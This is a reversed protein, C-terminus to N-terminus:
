PSKEPLGQKNYEYSIEKGDPLTVSSLQNSSKKYNFSTRYIPEERANFISPYIATLRARKDYRYNQQSVKGMLQQRSIETLITHLPEKGKFHILFKM